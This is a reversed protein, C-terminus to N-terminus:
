YSGGTAFEVRGGGTRVGGLGGTPAWAFPNQSTPGYGTGLGGSTFNYSNPTSPAALGAVRTATNVAAGATELVGGAVTLPIGWENIWDAESQLFEAQELGTEQQYETLTTQAEIQAERTDAARIQDQYNLRARTINNQIVDRQYAGAARTAATNLNALSVQRGVSKDVAAAMRLVSGSGVSVGGAGAAAAGAGKAEAGTRGAQLGQVASAAVAAQEQLKSVGIQATLEKETMALNTAAAARDAEIDDLETQLAELVQDYYGGEESLEELNEAEM